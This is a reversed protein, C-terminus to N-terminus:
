EQAIGWSPSSSNLPSPVLSSVKTRSFKRFSHIKWFLSNPPPQAESSCGSAGPSLQAWHGKHDQGFGLTLFAPPHEQGM